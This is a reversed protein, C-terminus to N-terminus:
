KMLIMKSVKTFSDATLRYFYVGSSLNAGDFKVEYTGKLKEGNVLIAVVKGLMDFVKLSVFSRKAVSYNIKTTPNFPNPYNQNLKFEIASSNAKVGTPGSTLKWLEYGTDIIDPDFKYSRAAFFLTGNVNTLEYPHSGYGELKHMDAIMITGDTTGDTRWLEDGDELTYASFYLLDNVVTLYRPNSSIARDFVDVGTAIDKVLFTGEATGDTSWLELGHKDDGDDYVFYLRGKFATQEYIESSEEGETLDIVLNTGGETGDTKWLERGHIGDCATFYLLSDVIVFDGPYSHISSGCCNGGDPCIDKVLHTGSATGNSKFLENGTNTSYASFFLQNKFNILNNPYSWAEGYPVEYTPTLDVVLFTGESTGDSRWLELGGIYNEGVTEGPGKAAFYYIGNVVASSTYGDLGPGGNAHYPGPWIDKVMYTGESTGDSRWLETETGGAVLDESSALFLLLSDKVTLYSPSSWDPGTYIDKIMRTGVPTGDTAWLEGGLGSATEVGRFFLQEKFVTFEGYNPDIDPNDLDIVLQTGDTTGDSKWLGKSSNFAVFYLIGNVNILNHLDSGSYGPNIDKVLNIRLEDSIIGSTTQAALESIYIFMVSLLIYLSVANKYHKYM